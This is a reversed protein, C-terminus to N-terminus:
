KWIKSILIGALVSGTLILCSSKIFENSNQTSFIETNWIKVCIKTHSSPIKELYQSVELHGNKKAVNQAEIKWHFFMSYSQIISQVCTLHGQKAAFYLVYSIIGGDIPSRTEILANLCDSNGSEAAYIMATGLINPDFNEAALLDKLSNIDGKEAATCL